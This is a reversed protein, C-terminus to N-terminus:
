PIFEGHRQSWLVDGTPTIWHFTGDPTRDPDLNPLMRWDRRHTVDHHATCLLAMSHLDSRGGKSWHITHHAQTWGIPADCGPFVCGGDRVRLARRQAPTALRVARGMNLIEHASDTVFTHIVPNCLLRWLNTDALRASGALVDGRQGLVRRFWDRSAEGVSPRGPLPRGAM